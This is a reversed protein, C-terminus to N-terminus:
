WMLSQSDHDVGRRNLSTQCYDITNPLNSLGVQRFSLNIM